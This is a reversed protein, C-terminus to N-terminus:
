SFGPSQPQLLTVARREVTRCCGTRATGRRRAPRVTGLCGRRLKVRLHQSKRPGVPDHQDHGAREQDSPLRLERQHVHLFPAHQWFGIVWHVLRLGPPSSERRRSTGVKSFISLRMRHRSPTCSKRSTSIVTLKPESPPTSFTRHVRQPSVMVRAPQPRPQVSQTVWDLARVAPRM